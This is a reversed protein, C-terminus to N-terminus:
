GMQFWCVEALSHFYAESSILFSISFPGAKQPNESGTGTYQQRTSSFVSLSSRMDWAASPTSISQTQSCMCSSFSHSLVESLIIQIGILVWLIVGLSVAYISTKNKGRPYICAQISLVSCIFLAHYVFVLDSVVVTGAGRFKYFFGLTSYIGYFVYDIINMVLYDMSYGEVRLLGFCVIQAHLERLGARLLFYVVSSHLHNISRLALDGLRREDKDWYIVIILWQNM